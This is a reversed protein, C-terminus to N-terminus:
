NAKKTEKLIKNFIFLANLKFILKIGGGRGGLFSFILRILKKNACTECKKIYFM